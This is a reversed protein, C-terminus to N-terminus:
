EHLVGATIKIRPTEGTFIKNNKKNRTKRQRYVFCTNHWNKYRTTIYPYKYKKPTKTNGLYCPNTVEPFTRHPHCPHPPLV